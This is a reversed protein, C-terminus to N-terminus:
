KFINDVRRIRVTLQLDKSGESPLALIKEIKPTLTIIKYMENLM